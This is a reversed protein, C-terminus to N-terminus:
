ILIMVQSDAAQLGLPLVTFRHVLILSGAERTADQLKQLLANLGFSRSEAADKHMHEYCMIVANVTIKM